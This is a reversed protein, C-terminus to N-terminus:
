HFELLLLIISLLHFQPSQALVASAELGSGYLAQSPSVRYNKFTTLSPFSKNILLKFKLGIKTVFSSAIAHDVVDVRQCCCMSEGVVLVVVLNM